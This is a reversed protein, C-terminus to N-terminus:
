LSKLESQLKRNHCKAIDTETEIQFACIPNEAIVVNSEM